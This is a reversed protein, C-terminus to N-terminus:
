WRVMQWFNHSALNIYRRSGKWLLSQVHTRNSPFNSNSNHNVNAKAVSLLDFYKSCWKSLEGLNYKHVRIYFHATLSTKFSNWKKLADILEFSLTKYKNTQWELKLRRTRLKSWGRYSLSRNSQDTTRFVLGALILGNQITRKQSYKSLALGSGCFM